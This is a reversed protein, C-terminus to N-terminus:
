APGGAAEDRLNGAVASLFISELSARHPSISVVEGGDRLVEALVGAVDKRPVRLELREGTGELRTAFRAALGEGLSPSLGTVVLDAEQEADALLGEASGLYRLRGEVLIAVRDCLLEVDPLIHTNMFVTKGESRLRLILDRVEKRGIPDLGSMPEDLFVVEPDGILAQAIGLRQLMGKSYTRLRLERAHTLGVWELVTDVRSRRRRKELGSLRAYFDLFEQGSLYDYFVPNEPLFGIHRRFETERVDHGLVRASGSTPHILGLLIKLTTTKGAGNPGVFGFIEGREVSFGIGHLVRRRRGFGLPFEKTVEELRVIESSAGM